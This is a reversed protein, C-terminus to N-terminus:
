VFTKTFHDGVALNKIRMEMLNKLRSSDKSVSDPRHKSLVSLLHVRQLVLAM